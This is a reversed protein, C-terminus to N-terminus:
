SLSQVYKELHFPFFTYMAIKVLQCCIPILIQRQNTPIKFALLWCMCLYISDISHLRSYFTFFTFFNRERERIRNVRQICVFWFCDWCQVESYVRLVICCICRIRTFIVGREDQETCRMFRGFYLVDFMNGRHWRIKINCYIKYQVSNFKSITRCRVCHVYTNRHPICYVYM